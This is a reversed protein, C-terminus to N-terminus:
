PAPSPEQRRNGHNDRPSLPTKRRRSSRTVLDERKLPRQRSWPAPSVHGGRANGTEAGAAAVHCQLGEAQASLQALRALNLAANLDRDQEHGCAECAFVRESLSLKAKVTGCASCTKSSPYFRGAAVLTSGAWVTKYALQNLITGVVAYSRHPPRSAAKLAAARLVTFSITWHSGSRRVTSRLIRADEDHDLLRTLKRLSEKTRLPGLPRDLRVQRSDLIRPRQFIVSETCAGKRRFRSFGVKRGSRKGASFNQLAKGLAEFGAQYCGCVVEGQWPALAARREKEIESCLSKYSWPVTVDHGFSREELRAKVLVLGQNFWFRSAGVCSALFAEQAATPALEYRFAQQTLNLV